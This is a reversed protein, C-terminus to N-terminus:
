LDVGLLREEAPAGKISLRLCEGSQFAQPPSTTTTLVYQFCADPGGEMRAAVAFLRAYVNASLDAERPSDHVLLGPLPLTQEMSLVLAALDFVVVKLSELAATSRLGGWEVNLHLGEADVKTTGLVDPVLERLVMNFKGSLQQITKSSAERYASLAQRSKKLDAEAGQLQTRTSTQKGVLTDFAEIREQLRQAARVAETSADYADEVTDLDRQADAFTKKAATLAQKLNRRENRLVSIDRETERVTIKRQQIGEQLAHVDCKIASIGCGEALANDILVKCVPCVPNGERNLEAYAEPLESRIISVLKEKTEVRNKLDGDRAILRDLEDKAADRARRMAQVDGARKRGPLNLAAALKEAAKSRWIEIDLPADSLEDATFLSDVIDQRASEIQWELRAQRSRLKELESAQTEEEALTAVEGSSLAGIAARVILLRDDRSVAPSHSDSDPSRWELARSFRCEQDRTMWPLLALWAGDPGVSAPVLDKSVGLISETLANILPEIGTPKVGDLFAERLQGGEQVFDRKRGLSRVVIWLKGDLMIEAGVHGQPFVRSIRARLEPPAYVDEGLCFRLLRCFTTKGGGHGIPSNEELSDPSWIINLGRRLPVDRIIENPARWIVLRRVWLKPTTRGIEPKITFGPRDFLEPQM